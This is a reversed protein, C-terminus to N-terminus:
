RQKNTLILLYKNKDEKKKKIAHEDKACNQRASLKPTVNPAEMETPFLICRIPM